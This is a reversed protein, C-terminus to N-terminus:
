LTSGASTAACSRPVLSVIWITGLIVTRSGWVYNCASDMATRRDASATHAWAVRRMVIFQLHALGAGGVPYSKREVRTIATNTQTTWDCRTALVARAYDAVATHKAPSFM